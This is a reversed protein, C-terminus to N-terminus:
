AAAIPESIEVNGPEPGSVACGGGVYGGQAPQSPQGYAVAGTPYNYNSGRTCGLMLLAVLVLITLLVFIKKM